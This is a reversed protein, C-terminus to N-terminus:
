VRGSRSRRCTQACCAFAAITVRMEDTIELGECGIFKKEDVEPDGNFPYWGGDDFFGVADM